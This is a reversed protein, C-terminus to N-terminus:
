PIVHTPSQILWHLSKAYPPPIHQPPLTYPLPLNTPPTHKQVPLKRHPSPSNVLKQAQQLTKTPSRQHNNSTASSRTDPSGRNQQFVIFLHFEPGHLELLTCNPNSFSIESSFRSIEANNTSIYPPTAMATDYAKHFLQHFTPIDPSYLALLIDIQDSSTAALIHLINEPKLITIKNDLSYNDGV